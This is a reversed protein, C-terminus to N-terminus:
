INWWQNQVGLPDKAFVVWSKQWLEQRIQEYQIPEKSKLKECYQARFGKVLSEGSFFSVM